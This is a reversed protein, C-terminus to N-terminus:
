SEDKMKGSKGEGIKGKHVVNVLAVAKEEMQGIRTEVGRSLLTQALMLPIAVSLGLMTTVLAESIGGSMLRPDGTGHLTIVHFTDIMGTVTGLLGLLPAIAALMGLTSLFREMPPIEKLIAEQLANEMEERTMHCCSLGAAVVRSVPTHHRACEDQCAQWNRAMALSAIRKMLGAARTRRRILFFTREAVILLGVALILLIPWVIPGGKPVQQLLNLEHTLQRLAGGRSIDMPVAESKGDMYRAIQRQMRGSPLTSLAYLRTGATSYNCFGTEGGFRYAATFPGILLIEADMERGSRNIIGGQHRKVQGAMEMQGFMAQTMARIDAMGPFREDRAVAELFSVQKEALATQLNQSILADLDKANIRIQGVLETIMSDTQALQETLQAEQEALRDYDASLADVEKELAQNAASLEAIAKKLTARDATIGARSEAAAQNAAAKETDAKRILEAEAELARTQLVRDDGTAAFCVSSGLFWLLVLVFWPFRKM